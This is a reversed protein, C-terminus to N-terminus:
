FGFEWIGALPWGQLSSRFHSAEARLRLTMKKSVEEGHSGLPPLLSHVHQLVFSSLHPLPGLLSSTQADISAVPASILFALPRPCQYLNNPQM